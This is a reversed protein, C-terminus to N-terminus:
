QALREEVWARVEEPTFGYADKIDKMPLGLADAPVGWEAGFDALPIGTMAAIDAFSMWGKIPSDTGQGEGPGQGEGGGSHGAGRAEARGGMRWDFAGTLTTAGVIAVMLALVAGTAALAPARSGGPATVTLAGPVPCANVCENCSICESSTVVDATAVEVNMMCAKDCRGCDICTAADRRINLFSVRSLLGLLAGAPCLYKCFFREYVLSGALSVVLVALGIGYTTFLDAATLHAWAVWPDYPRMVLEAAQWTWLLFFAFVGYKLFRAVRDVAYPVTPRRKGFLRRGAAGFIGQLAGLPCLMGCFSRRFAVAMVLMSVLLIVASAATHRLFGAGALLSYLTELGGFPCLFDM